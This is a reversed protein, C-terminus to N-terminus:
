IIIGTSRVGECLAKVRGIYKFQGRDFVAKKVGKELLKKGMLMGVETAIQSKNQNPTKKVKLDNQSAMTVGEKDDIAQLYIHISSRSVSLRPVDKSGRIKNASAVRKKQSKSILHLKM